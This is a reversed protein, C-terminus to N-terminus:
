TWNPCSPWQTLRGPPPQRRRCLEDLGRRFRTALGRRRRHPHRAHPRPHRRPTRHRAPVLRHLPSTRPPHRSTSASSSSTPASRSAPAGAPCCGAHPARTEPSPTAGASPSWTRALSALPEPLVVPERGLRPTSRQRQSSTTSPSAASRRRAAPRLAPRAARRGPGRARPHRRAAAAPSTGLARRDDIVRTPGAWRTAPFDLSTLKQNLPGASSTGPQAASAPAGAPWGRDLDAQPCSALTLDRATLWDLFTVAARHEPPRRQGPPHRPHRPEPPAAPATRALGRLPAPDGKRRILGARSPRRSGANSSPSTSTAPPCREPPSWSAACIRWPKSAPLEDLADHTLPRLGAALETLM